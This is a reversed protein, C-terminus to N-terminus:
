HGSGGEPEVHITLVDVPLQARLTQEVATAIEHSAITSLDPAVTVVLDVEAGRGSSRSRVRRVGLVGPVRLTTRRLLEPDISAGDVLVPLSRHFLGYALFLILGAVALSAVTDVWLHGRAAAQWGVIAVVTTLVDALTHRADAGLIQSDLRRAWRGEWTALGVNTALVGLMGLLAWGSDVIQPESRRLASGALEVATVTLLMALLFVAVTEFKRHGYPHGEDPPRGSWRVVVWAVVNNALDTLSHVSDSLIGLSGTSFGVLGKLLAMCLNAGGEIRMVRQVSRGRVDADAAAHTPDMAAVLM